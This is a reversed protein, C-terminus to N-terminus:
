HVPFHPVEMLESINMENHFQKENTSSANDSNNVHHINVRPATTNCTDSNVATSSSVFIPDLRVFHYQLVLGIHVTLSTATNNRSFVPTVLVTNNCTGQLIKVTINLMDCIGQLAVNDGWSRNGLKQLYRDFILRQREKTDAVTSILLDLDDPYDTDANYVANTPVALCVHEMYHESKEQLYTVLSKRFEHSSTPGQKLLYMISEFLCDGNGPVDHVFYGRQQAAASLMEFANVNSSLTNYHLPLDDSNYSNYPHVDNLDSSVTNSCVFPPM